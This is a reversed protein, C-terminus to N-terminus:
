QGTPRSIWVDWVYWRSESEDLQGIKGFCSCTISAIFFLLKPLTAVFFGFFDSNELSKWKEMAM